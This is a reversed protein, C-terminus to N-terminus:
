ERVGVSEKVDVGGSGGGGGSRNERCARVWMGEGGREGVCAGAGAGARERVWVWVRV